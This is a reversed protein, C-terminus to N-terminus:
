ALLGPLGWLFIWLCLVRTSASAPVRLSIFGGCTILASTAVSSLLWQIGDALTPMLFYASLGLPVQLLAASLLLTGWEGQWRTRRALMRLFEEQHSLFGVALSSGLMCLVIGWQAALDWTPDPGHHRFPSMARSLPVILLSASLLM